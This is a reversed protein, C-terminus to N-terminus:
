TPRPLEFVFISPLFDEEAEVMNFVQEILLNFEDTLVYTSCFWRDDVYGVRLLQRL